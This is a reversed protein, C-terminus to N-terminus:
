RSEARERRARDALAIEAARIDGDERPRWRYAKRIAYVDEEIGLSVIPREDAVTRMIERLMGNRRALDLEGASREIMEDLAPNSYGGSNWEGLHRAPDPSHILQEFAESADGTECAFRDLVMTAGRGASLSWFDADALIRLDVAIGARGLMRALIRGTDAFMPRTHLTVRFGEPFGASTILRRAQEPDAEAPALAPEFGFISPPVCQSAPRMGFPVEGALAQRDIALDVAKRVAPRRFPNERASCFRAIDNATDFALFTVFLSSTREIRAGRAVAGDVSRADSEVLQSGGSVLDAAAQAPSREVRFTVRGIPPAPGWYGDFARMGLRSGRQWVELTYPGTGDERRALDDGSAGDPVVYLYQLKSLLITVPERTRIRITLPDPTEVDMVDHAYASLEFGRSDRLREISYAVDRSQLRKGSHFRVGQRLHFVWTLPDPNEWGTALVPRPRLTADSTVLAEYLNSAISLSGASGSAHPDLTEIAYPVSITISAPNRGAPGPACFSALGGCILALIAAWKRSGRM